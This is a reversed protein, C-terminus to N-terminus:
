TCGAPREHEHMQGADIGRACEETALEVLRGDREAVDTAKAARALETHARQQREVRDHERLRDRQVYPAREPLRRIAGIVLREDRLVSRGGREADGAPVLAGIRRSVSACDM